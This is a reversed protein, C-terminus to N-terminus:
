YTHEESPFSGDEVESKYSALAESILPHLTAFRKVFRPAPKGSIGLLDTFVLVQGDCGVGAGIGITPISLAGSIMAGLEAPVCELVIAFAGAQEVAMADDMLQRAQESTKGQVKYGGMEKISQPTLGIHGLVPVGNKVLSEILEGRLAGGEVKVADAHAEKIFRGANELAMAISPQYSMFPMDAIILANKVGRSVAATHHLMEDMGVPLTTEYGLVTMGLSDGVLIAPIGADEVLSATLADYATLMAIRQEGKLAKIKAATWKM